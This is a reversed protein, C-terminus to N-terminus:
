AAKAIRLRQLYNAPTDYPSHCIGSDPCVLCMQRSITTRNTRTKLREGNGLDPLIPWFSRIVLYGLGIQFTRGTSEPCRRPHATIVGMAGLKHRKISAM